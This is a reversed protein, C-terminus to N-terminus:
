LDAVLAVVSKRGRAFQSTVHPRVGPLVLTTVRESVNSSRLLVHPYVSHLLRVFTVLTVVPIQPSLGKWHFWQSFVKM